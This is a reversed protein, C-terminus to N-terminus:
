MSWIMRIPAASLWTRGSGCESLPWGVSGCRKMRSRQRVIVPTAANQLQSGRWFFGHPATLRFAAGMMQCAASLLATSTVACRGFPLGVGRLVDFCHGCM